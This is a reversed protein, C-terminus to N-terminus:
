WLGELTTKSNKCLEKGICRVTSGVCDVTHGQRVVAENQCRINLELCWLMHHFLILTLPENPLLVNVLYGNDLNPKMCHGERTQIIRLHSMRISVVPSTHM